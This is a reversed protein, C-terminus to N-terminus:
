KSKNILKDLLAQYNAGGSDNIQVNTQNKVSGQKLQELKIQKDLIEMTMKHSLALLESIDKSSGTDAEEMEELKKNIVQDMINRIRFRNNFGYDLFVSDIYAKVERRSLYQSVVDTSINLKNATQTLDQCQLYANAIELSEPSIKLSEAPTSMPLNNTM